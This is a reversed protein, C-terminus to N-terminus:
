FEIQSFEFGYIFPFTSFHFQFARVNGIPFTAVFSWFEPIDYLYRDFCMDIHILMFVFTFVGCLLSIGFTCWLCAISLSLSRSNSKNWVFKKIVNTICRFRLLKRHLFAMFNFWGSELINRDDTLNYWKQYINNINKLSVVSTWFLIVQIIQSNM